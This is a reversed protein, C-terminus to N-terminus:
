VLPNVQDVPDMLFEEDDEEDESEEEGEKAAEQTEDQGDCDHDIGMDAVFGRM